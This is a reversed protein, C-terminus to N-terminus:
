RAPLPFGGASPDLPMRRAAGRLTTDVMTEVGPHEECLYERVDELTSFSLATMPPREGDSTMSLIYKGVATEYLVFRAGDGSARSTQYSRAVVVGRFVLDSRDARPLRVQPLRSHGTLSIM